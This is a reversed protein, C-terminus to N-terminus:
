LFRLNLMDEELWGQRAGQNGTYFSRMQLMRLKLLLGPVPFPGSSRVRCGLDTLHVVAGLATDGHSVYVALLATAGPKTEPQFQGM